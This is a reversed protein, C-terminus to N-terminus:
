WTVMSLAFGAAVAACAMLAGSLCDKWAPLPPLDLPVYEDGVVVEGKFLLPPEWFAHRRPAMPKFSREVGDMLVGIHLLGGEHRSKRFTLKIEDGRTGRGAKKLRRYECIAWLVCNSYM